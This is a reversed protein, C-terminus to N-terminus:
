DGAGGSKYCQCISGLYLLAARVRPQYDRDRRSIHLKDYLLNIQNEVSKNSLHLRRAIAGNSLGQAILALIERHRPRLSGLLGGDEEPEGQRVFAYHRDRVVLGEATDEIARRLGRVIHVSQESLYSWTASANATAEDLVVPHRSRSLILIGLNPMIDRLKLCLDVANMPGPLETDVLVVRAASPPIGALASEGDRFVGCVELGDERSLADVLLGRFLSEDAVVAVDIVPPQSGISM